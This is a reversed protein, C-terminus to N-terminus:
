PNLDLRYLSAPFESKECSLFAREPSVLAIGETQLGTLAPFDLRHATGHSYDSPNFDELIWIFPVYDRYGCLVVLSKCPIADAGTVLGDVPYTMRPKLEYSGPKTPCTYLTTSDTEWDKTFLFLSDGWVFAAECDYRSRRVPNENKDRGAYRYRIIEAGVRANGSRPISDKAVRYVQLEDRRGFNNGVDCIYIYDGDQALSEWDANEADLISIEQLPKGGRNDFGYLVPNGGSDNITWSKGRFRILGSSEGLRGDLEEVYELIGATEGAPPNGRRGNRIGCGPFLSFATLCLLLLHVPQIIGPQLGPKM